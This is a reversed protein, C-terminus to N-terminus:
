GFIVRRFSYLVPTLFVFFPSFFLHIYSQPHQRQARTQGLLLSGLFVIKPEGMLSKDCIFYKKIINSVDRVTKLRIKPM